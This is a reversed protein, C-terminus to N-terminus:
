LLFFPDPSNKKIGGDTYKRCFDPANGMKMKEEV